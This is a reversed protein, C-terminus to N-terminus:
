GVDNHYANCSAAITHTYAEVFGEKNREEIQKRLNAFITNRMPEFVDALEITLQKSRVIRTSCVRISRDIHRITENYYYKTM